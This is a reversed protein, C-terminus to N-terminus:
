RYYVPRWRLMDSPLISAKIVALPKYYVTTYQLISAKLKAKTAPLISAKMEAHWKYYVTTYQGEDWCTVQLISYYVPRWRLMNSTIYQTYQGEVWSKDSTTYQLISAKMEAHWKYYVTTYQGEDWCTAQLINYQQRYYVTTYQLISAKMEAHWKHYQATSVKLGTKM